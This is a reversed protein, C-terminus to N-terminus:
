LRHSFHLLSQIIVFVRHLKIFLNGVCFEKIKHKIVNIIDSNGVFNISYLICHLYNLIHLINNLVILYSYFLITNTVYM